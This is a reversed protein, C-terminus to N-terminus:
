IFWFNCSLITFIKKGINQHEFSGRMSVTSKLVWLMHKPQSVLFNNEPVCELCFAQTKKESLEKLSDTKQLKAHKKTM